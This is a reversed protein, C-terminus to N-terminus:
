LKENEDIAPLVEDSLSPNCFTKRVTLCYSCKTCVFTNACCSKGNALSLEQVQTRLAVKEVSSSLNKEPCAAHEDDQGGRKPGPRFTTWSTGSKPSPTRWGAGM